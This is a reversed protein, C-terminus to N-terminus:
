FLFLALMMLVAGLLAINKTFNIMENMRQNPDQIAWFNHMKVSVVLLFVAILILAIAIYEGLAIGLGGLFLMIGTLAVMFGAMPVGKSAAYGSMMKIKTFHNFGNMIFFGGFLVRGILFIINDVIYLM